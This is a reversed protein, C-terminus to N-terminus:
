TNCVNTGMEAYGGVPNFLVSSGDTSLEDSPKTQVNGKIEIKSIQTSDGNLNVEPGGSNRDLNLNM